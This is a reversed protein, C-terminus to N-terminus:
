VMAEAQKVMNKLEDTAAEEAVRKTAGISVLYDTRDTIFTRCEECVGNVMNEPHKIPCINCRM